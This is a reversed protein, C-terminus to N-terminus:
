PALGSPDVAGKTTVLRRVVEDGVEDKPALRRLDDLALSTSDREGTSAMVLLRGRLMAVALRELDPDGGRSVARALPDRQAGFAELARRRDAVGLPVADVRLALGAVTTARALERRVGAPAVLLVPRAAALETWALTEPPLGLALDRLIPLVLRERLAARAALPGRPDSAPLVIAERPLHGTASAALLSTAVDADYTVFLAPEAGLRDFRLAEFVQDRASPDVAVRGLSRDLRALPTAAVLVGLLAASAEAFPIRARAVRTLVGALGVAALAAVGGLGALLTGAYRTPGHPARLVFALGLLVLAPAIVALAGGLRAREARARLEGLSFAGALAAAVLVWGLELDPALRATRPVLGTEGLWDVPAVGLAGGTASPEPLLAAAGFGVALALAVAPVGRWTPRRPRARRDTSPRADVGARAHLVVAVLSAALLPEFTAALVGLGLALDHRARSAALLAALALAAGTTSAGAGASEVLLPPSLAVTAAAVTAMAGELPTTPRGAARRIAELGLARTAVGFLALAVASPVRARLALDGFPLAVFPAAFAADLARFLGTRALLAVRVLGRDHGVPSATGPGVLAALLPALAVVLVGAVDM